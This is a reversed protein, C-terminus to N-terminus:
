ILNISTALAFRLAPRIAEVPGRGFGPLGPAGFLRVPLAFSAVIARAWRAIIIPRM